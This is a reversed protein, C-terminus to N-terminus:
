ADKEKKAQFILRGDKLVNMVKFGHKKLMDTLQDQYFSRLRTQDKIMRKEDGKEIIYKWDVAWTNESAIYDYLRSLRTIKMDEFEFVAERWGGFEYQRSKDADFSDFMLIGGGRLARNFGKLAKNVDEDTLMYGFSGGLCILADFPKGILIDRMDQMLLEGKCRKRAIKLMKQSLDLGTVEYGNEEMIAMLRGTGCAVELIRKCGHPKLFGDIVDFTDRYSFIQPYIRDYLWALENYLKHQSNSKSNIKDSRFAIAWRM